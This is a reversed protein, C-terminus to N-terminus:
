EGKYEGTIKAAVGSSMLCIGECTFWGFQEGYETCFRIKLTSGTEDDVVTCLVYKPWPQYDSLVREVTYKKGVEFKM